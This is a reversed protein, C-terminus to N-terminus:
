PVEFSLSSWVSIWEAGVGARAPLLEVSNLLMRGSQLPVELRGDADSRLLLRRVEGAADTSFVALPHDPLPDGMWLLRVPLMDGAQLGHPNADAVIDFPMGTPADRDDERVPGTQILARANRFYAETFGTEPLGLERHLDPIDDLGEFTVYDVFDQWVSFRLLSGTTELVVSSLGDPPAVRPDAVPVETQGQVLAYRTLQSPEPTWGEGALMEGVLVELAIETGPEVLHRDPAIWFEHAAAPVVAGLVALCLAAPQFPLVALCTMLRM